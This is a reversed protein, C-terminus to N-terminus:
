KIWEQSFMKVHRNSQADNNPWYSNNCCWGSFKSKCVYGQGRGLIEREGLVDADAAKRKRCQEATHNAMQHCEYCRRLGSEAYVCQRSMHGMQGCIYCKANEPRVSTTDVQLLMTKMTKVPYWGNTQQHHLWFATQLMTCNKAIAKYFALRYQTESLKEAHPLSHWAAHYHWRFSSKPRGIKLHSWLDAQPARANSVRGYTMLKVRDVIATATVLNM